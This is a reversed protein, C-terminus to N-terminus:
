ATRRKRFQIMNRRIANFSNAPGRSRNVTPSPRSMAGYRFSDLAHDDTATDIDEPDNKSSVAAAMTRVLYRCDPHIVVTPIGDERLKLLERSRQWGQKRDNKGMVLPVGEKAFTEEMSEGTLIGAASASNVDPGKLAPDAVTYRLVTPISGKEWNGLGIEEDIERIKDCLLHILMHSFKLERRIYYRGDPMCAWWLVVGPQIYGWDISRFWECTDGPNGLDQVHSHKLGPSSIFETFFTGAVVDWDNYRLQQFRWPQLVALDTEYDPPLYPNDELGGPIYHWDSPEYLEKLKKSYQDWDPTHDIFFDRLMTASPGGPNTYVRFRAGGAELVAKKTTRARTSLELLPQPQFNVGEDVSIDDRERSLYKKVDSANEMHGGEIVAGTDHFRMERNTISFEVNYGHSKFVEAERDMLRFHHKNLEDWTERLLLGEYNHLRLARRYMSWRAIHSKTSGAAGGGLLNRSTCEEFEVQKPLPVFLPVYSRNDPDGDKDKRVMVSFNAQRTRCAETSCWYTEDIKVFRGGCWCCVPITAM